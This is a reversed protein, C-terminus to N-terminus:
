TMIGLQLFHLSVLNLLRVKLRLKQLFGDIKGRFM